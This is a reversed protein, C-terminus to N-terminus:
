AKDVMVFTSMDPDQDSGEQVERLPAEPAKVNAILDSKVPHTDAQDSKFLNRIQNPSGKIGDISRQCISRGFNGINEWSSPFKVYIFVAICTVSFLGFALEVPVGSDSNVNLENQFPPAPIPVDAYGGLGVAPM